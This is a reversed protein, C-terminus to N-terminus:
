AARRGDGLDALLAALRDRDLPKVLVADLGAAGFREPEAPSADATLAVIPVRAGSDAELARIRAAAAVGDLGPMHLDMLVVDFPRGADRAAAWAAVAAAGDPTLTVAH